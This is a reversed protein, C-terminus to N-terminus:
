FMDRDIMLSSYLIYLKFFTTKIFRSDFDSNLLKVEKRDGVFCSIEILNAELDEKGFVVFDEVIEVKEEIEVEGEIFVTSVLTASYFFVVAIPFRKIFRYLIIFLPFIM